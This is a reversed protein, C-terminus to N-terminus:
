FDGEKIMNYVAARIERAASLPALRGPLALAHVCDIGLREAATFDTGGPRSALDLVLAGRPLLRLREEPLVMAPVTNFVIDAQPLADDAAAIDEAAVGLAALERRTESRRAYATVCAGLARLKVALLRGIRGGGMVAARSGCLVARSREIALCIACEATIEANGLLYDERGAYALVQAGATEARARLEASAAPAIIYAGRLDSKEDIFCATYGDGRLLECLLEQRADGPQLVFYPEKGNKM